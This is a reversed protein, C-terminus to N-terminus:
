EAGKVEEVVYERLEAGFRTMDAASLERGRQDPPVDLTLHLYRAGRRNIAAVLNVPLTGLVIDGARVAAPDLHATPAAAIGRAAAWAVAGAHRTVFYVTM